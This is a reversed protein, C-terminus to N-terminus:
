ACITVVAPDAVRTSLSTMSAAAAPRHSAPKHEVTTNRDFGRACATSVAHM